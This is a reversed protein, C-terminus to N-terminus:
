WKTIFGTVSYLKKGGMTIKGSGKNYEATFSKRLGCANDWNRDTAILQYKNKSKKKASIVQFVHGPSKIEGIAGNKPTSSTSFGCKKAYKYWEGANGYMKGWCKQFNIKTRGVVYETCQPHCVAAQKTAQMTREFGIGEDPRQGEIPTYIADGDEVRIFLGTINDNPVNITVEIIDEDVPHSEVTLLLDGFRYWQPETKGDESFGVDINELDTPHKNFSVELEAMGDATWKAEIETVALAEEESIPLAYTEAHATLAVVMLFCIGTLLNSM